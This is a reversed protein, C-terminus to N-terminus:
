RGGGCSEIARRLGLGKQLTEAYEAEPTSDAVIGGGVQYTVRNGEVTMTRIAINFESTGGRSWYGMAGTYVGRRHTELEDIIEMARIKPAGTISGGPFMARVVDIPGVDPRLRGEVTGVLHHVQEFSEVAVPESVRVSGFRCVRGLDNRELDVIMTLEARDKISEELERELRRDEDPDASRPRTGKIPRTVIRDGQTKYFTEPSAGVVASGNWGFFAAFPAPSARKLHLYLDLADVPGEAQFRQSLNIQYVDGAEIYDLAKRAAALYDSRSMIPRPTSLQTLGRPLPLAALDAKWRDARAAVKERPEDLLNVAWLESAQTQHDVVVFTDYLGFRIEPIGSDRGMRRPLRELRTALDYGLFGIMGGQFPPGEEDTADRSDALRFRDLLYALAPLPDSQKQITINRSEWWYSSGDSSVFEMRPRAALISWRGSGVSELLAPRDWAGILPALEDPSLSLPLRIPPAPM